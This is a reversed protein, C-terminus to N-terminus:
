FDIYSSLQSYDSHHGFDLTFSHSEFDTLIYLHAPQWPTLVSESLGPSWVTEYRHRGVWFMCSCVYWPFIPHTPRAHYSRVFPM